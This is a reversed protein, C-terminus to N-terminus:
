EGPISGRGGTQDIRSRGTIKMGLIKTYFEISKELDKVRIGTYSFKARMM